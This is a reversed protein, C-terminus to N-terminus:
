TDSLIALVAREVTRVNRGNLSEGTPVRRLRDAVTVGNHYLDLLRPDVYSAKVVAPTNGLQESVVKYVGSIARRRKTISQAPPKAGLALAM